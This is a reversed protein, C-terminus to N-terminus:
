EISEMHPIREVFFNYAPFIRLSEMKKYVFYKRKTQVHLTKDWCKQQGENKMFSQTKHNYALVWCADCYQGKCSSSWPPATLGGQTIKPWLGQFNYGIKAIGPKWIAKGHM